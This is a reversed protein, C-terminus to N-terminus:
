RANEKDSEDFRESWDVSIAVDENPELTQWVKGDTDATTAMVEIGNCDRFVRLVTRGFPFLNCKAIFDGRRLQRAKIMTTGDNAM